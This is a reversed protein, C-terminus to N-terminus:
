IGNQDLPRPMGTVNFVASVVARADLPSLHSYVRSLMDLSKWGGLKQVVLLSVGAKILMAAGTHRLSHMTAKEGRMTEAVGARKLDRRFTTTTCALGAQAFIPGGNSESILRRIEPVLDARIPVVQPAATKANEPRLHLTAAEPDALDFDEAVTALLAGRRTLTTLGIRYFLSRRWPAAAFLRNIEEITLVRKPHETAGTPHEMKPVLGIYGNESLWKLFGKVVVSKALRTGSSGKLRSAWDELKAATAKARLSALDTIGAMRFFEGVRHRIAVVRRASVGRITKFKLFKELLSAATEKADNKPLDLGALVREGHRRLDALMTAAVVKDRALKVLKGAVRDYWHASSVLAKGSSIEKAWTLQGDLRYRVQPEGKHVRREADPKVVRVTQKKFM